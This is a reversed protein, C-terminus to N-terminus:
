SWVIHLRRPQCRRTGPHYFLRQSPQRNPYRDNALRSLNDYHFTRSIKPCSSFIGITFTSGDAPEVLTYSPPNPGAGEFTLLADGGQRAKVPASPAARALTAVFALATAVAFSKMTSLVDLNPRSSLESCYHHISFASLRGYCDRGHPEKYVPLVRWKVDHLSVSM